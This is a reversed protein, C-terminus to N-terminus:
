KDVFSSEALDIARALAAAKNECERQEDAPDSDAVIGAGAQLHAIWERRKNVDKYSYMTDFRTNTPFVITRLALAIDMDGTFSIGGFGGSYPGRRAVELQDILEMAKVKPAGSVTGVPLAARLADWSTLHDSLEGTVTSSIHMVHSYREINMLKEVQVSGPKSVRGVDNRGLDVLMVHEACQKEDNLLDKELMIDEKPTKGRRVTGALPRNTIKRKKVRTLIEPSSAVLISGRAQLYTMYPSPNVIRLARYVEFPDAFTRREFRQSLVIQFIDGALIHEKAQLVAKKYEENTMNSMELKPGFLNTLLKISGAPLRPTIIDHVRSVLTELRDMGDNLAEEASSYRDLRVWHIVYAKKEVHDFVIVNEYLGLHIDPLGRDDIPANAFPLKKKEVYRMTDYSFYGVWGGCFAEPLDDILQPTWKEMIRRPIVLPDEAIEEIKSGEEHDMITVMNEKAVIEMCPQAGVVSYRGTSSIQLGPEASEFLFSPADREDEKVLCRYALVPTLHDSFICRYLPIVNGKKSAELFKEANEVIPLSQASCRIPRYNSRSRSVSFKPFPLTSLSLSEIVM